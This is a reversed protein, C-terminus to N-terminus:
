MKTLDLRIPMSYAVRVAKGNQIGPSWKPSANFVNIAAEGTGHGLDRVVKLDSLSGDKEVVFTVQITGKVKADIAAKPYKFNNGIWKRYATLGGPPEPIIEVSQYDPNGKPASNLFVIKGGSKDQITDKVEIPSSNETDILDLLIPLVYAFRVVKGNQIAPSWKPSKKLLEVAAEGTGYGLDNAYKIDSLSGDKEVVFSVSVTGKVGADVAAQPYQYNDGIWKRFASLGGKPEALIETQTFIENGEEKITDTAVSPPLQNEKVSIPLSSASIEENLPLHAQEIKAEVKAVVNKARSTNFVITSLGVVMVAPIIGLYLFRKNDSSKNKFLMM